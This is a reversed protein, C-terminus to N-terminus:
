AEAISKGTSSSDSAAVSSSEISSAVRNARMIANILAILLRPPLPKVDERGTMEDMVVVNPVDIEASSASLEATTVTLVLPILSPSVIVNLKAPNVYEACTSVLLADNAIGANSMCASSSPLKIAVAVSSDSEVM